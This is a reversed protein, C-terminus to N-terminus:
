TLKENFSLSFSNNKARFWENKFVQKMGIGNKRGVQLTQGQIIHANSIKHNCSFWKKRQKKWEIM